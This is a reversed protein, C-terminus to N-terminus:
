QTTNAKNSRKIKFENIKNQLPTIRTIHIIIHTNKNCNNNVNNNNNSNHKPHTQVQKLKHKTPQYKLLITQCKIESYLAQWIAIRYVLIYQRKETEMEIAKEWSSIVVLSNIRICKYFLRKCRMYVFLGEFGCEDM